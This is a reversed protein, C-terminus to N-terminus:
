SRRRPLRLAASARQALTAFPMPDLVPVAHTRAQESIWAGYQWIQRNM